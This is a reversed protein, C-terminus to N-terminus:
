NVTAKIRNVLKIVLEDYDNYIVTSKQAVDFHLPNKEEERKDYIHIVEKGFAYAYGAVYYAGDCRISLDVVVFSALKNDLCNVLTKLFLVIFYKLGSPFVCTVTSYTSSLGALISVMNIDFWCKSVTSKSVIFFSMVPWVCSIQRRPSGTECLMEGAM